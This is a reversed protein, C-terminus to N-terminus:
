PSHISNGKRNNSQPSDSGIIASSRSICRLKLMLNCLSVWTEPRRPMDPLVDGYGHGSGRIPHAFSFTRLLGVHGIVGVRM